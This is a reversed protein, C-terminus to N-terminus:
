MGEKYPSLNLNSGVILKTVGRLTLNEVRRARLMADGGKMEKLRLLKRNLVQYFGLM